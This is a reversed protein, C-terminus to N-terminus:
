LTAIKTFITLHDTELVKTISGCCCKMFYLVIVSYISQSFLINFHLKISIFTVFILVPLCKIGLQTEEMMLITTKQLGMTHESDVCLLQKPFTFLLCFLTFSILRYTAADPVEYKM